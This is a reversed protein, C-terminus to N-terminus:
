GRRRRWYNFSILLGTAAVLLAGFSPEPVKAAKEPAATQRAEAGKADLSALGLAAAALLSCASGAPFLVFRAAPQM